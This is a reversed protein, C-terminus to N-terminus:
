TSIDSVRRRNQNWPIRKIINKDDDFWRYGRDPKRWNGYVATLNTEHDDPKRWTRGLFEFEEFGHAPIVHELEFWQRSNKGYSLSYFSRYGFTTDDRYYIFNFDVQCGNRTFQIFTPIGENSLFFGSSSFGARVLQSISHEFIPLDDLFCAFDLDYDWPLIQGERAWGLLLGAWVWYKGNLPTTQLADHVLRACEELKETLNSKMGM